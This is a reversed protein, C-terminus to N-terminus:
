SLERLSNFNQGTFFFKLDFLFVTYAKLSSSDFPVYYFSYHTVQGPPTQHCLVVDWSHGSTHLFEKKEVVFALVPASPFLFSRLFIAESCSTM